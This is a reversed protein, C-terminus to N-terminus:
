DSPASTARAGSIEPTPNLEGVLAQEDRVLLHQCAEPLAQSPELQNFRIMAQLEDIYAYGRSSYQELGEALAVGTVRAQQQRLCGRIERVPEYAPHSNLNAFYANISGQVSSFKAVEHFAEDDRAQPVLGCGPKFCWQGFLNNGQRAFRSTGWASENAAQALVLSEPLSDVRSLLRSFFGQDTVKLKIRYQKALRVM